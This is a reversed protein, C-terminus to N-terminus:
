LGLAIERLTAAVRVEHARLILWPDHPEEDKTIKTFVKKKASKIRPAKNKQPQEFTQSSVGFDSKNRKKGSLAEGVIRQM